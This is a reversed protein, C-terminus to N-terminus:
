HGPRRASGAHLIRRFDASYADIRRELIGALFRRARTDWVAIKRLPNMLYIVTTLSTMLTIGIGVLFLSSASM